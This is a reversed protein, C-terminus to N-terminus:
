IRGKQSIPRGIAEGADSAGVEAVAGITEGTIPSRVTLTGGQYRREDVGFGSLIASVEAAISPPSFM